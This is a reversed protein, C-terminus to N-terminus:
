GWKKHTILLTDKVKEVGGSLVIYNKKVEPKCRPNNM